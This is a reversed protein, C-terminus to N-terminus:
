IGMNSLTMMIHNLIGTVRPHQAEFQEVQQQLKDILGAAHEENGEGRIQQEVEVILEDMRQRLLEDKEGLSEIETHLRELADRLDQKSM